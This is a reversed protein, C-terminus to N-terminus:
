HVLKLTQRCVESCYLKAFVKLVISKRCEVCDVIQPSAMADLAQSIKTESLIV